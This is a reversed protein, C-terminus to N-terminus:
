GYRIEGLLAMQIAVDYTCADGKEEFWNVGWLKVGEVYAKVAAAEDLRYWRQCGPEGQPLPKGAKWAALAAKLKPEEGQSHIEDDEWVLWGLKEDRKVGRLWYGCYGRMFIDVEKTLYDIWDERPVNVEVEATAKVADKKKRM